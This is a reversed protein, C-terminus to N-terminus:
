EKRKQLSMVQVTAYRRLPTVNKLFWGDIKWARKEWRPVIQKVVRLFPLRFRKAAILNFDRSFHSFEGLTLPREYPSMEEGRNPVLRRMYTLTRSDRVPERLILLGGPRLVRWIEQRARELDLHHLISIAFVIDVSECELGTSYASATRLQATVHHQKLRKEALEILEPSLDLGTVKAGRTALVVTTEGSGCGLDLIRKGRVDGLLHYAFELSYPTDPSPNLYRAVECRLRDAKRAEAASRLQEASEWEALHTSSIQTAM